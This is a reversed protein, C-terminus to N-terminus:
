IFLTTNASAAEDVFKAVGCYELYPYEILEERRVGMLQMSMECVRIRVGLDGATAILEDLSAINKKKMERNMLLRGMGCMDMQSLKTKRASAPLLMGFAREVWSKRGVQPGGKRLAATSWFTFFMGVEMGCAAAGTALIFAAMLRDRYGEFVLLNLRNTDPQSAQQASLLAELRELRAEMAEITDSKPETPYTVTKRSATADMDLGKLPPFM